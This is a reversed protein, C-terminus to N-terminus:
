SATSPKLARFSRNARGSRADLRPRPLRDIARGSSTTAADGSVSPPRPGRRRVPPPTETGVVETRPRSCRRVTPPLWATTTWESQISTATLCTAATGALPLNVGDVSAGGVPSSRGRGRPAAVLLPRGSRASIGDHRLVLQVLGRHGLGLLQDLGPLVDEPAVPAVDLGVGLGLVGEQLGVVPLLVAGPVEPQRHTGGVLGLGAVGEHVAVEAADVAAAEDRAHVPRRLPAVLGHLQPGGGAAAARRRRLSVGSATTARPRSPCPDTARPPLVPIPAADDVRGAEGLSGPEGPIGLVEVGDLQVAREVPQRSGRDDLAPGLRRRRTELVRHLHAREPAM